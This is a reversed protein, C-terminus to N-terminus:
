ILSNNVERRCELEEGLIATWVTKYVHYGRIVCSMETSVITAMITVYYVFVHVYLLFKITFFQQCSNLKTHFRRARFNLQAFM